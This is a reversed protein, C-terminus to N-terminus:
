RWGWEHAIKQLAEGRLEVWKDHEKEQTGSWEHYDKPFTLSPSPPLKINCLKLVIDDVDLGDKALVGEMGGRDIDMGQYAAAIDNLLPLTLAGHNYVAIVAAEFSTFAANNGM